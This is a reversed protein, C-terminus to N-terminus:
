KRTSGAAEPAFYNKLVGLVSIAGDNRDLHDGGGPLRVQRAASHMLLLAAAARKSPELRTMRMM